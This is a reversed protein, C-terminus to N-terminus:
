GSARPAQLATLPLRNEPNKGYLIEFMRCFRQAYTHNQAHIHGAKRIAEREEEHELYYDRLSIAEEPTDFYVRTGEPYFEECGPWRKTLAFGGAGTIIWFRNSTYGKIDTFHSWDLSIKASRYISPMEKMIKARLQPYKQASADIHKLGHDDKLNWIIKAREMFGAGTIIGGIFVWDFAYKEQVAADWVPSGLPLFHCEPVKWKMRYYEEQADNSVFMADIESCNAGIQTTNSNRLDGYWMVIKADPLAKRIAGRADWDKVLDLLGYVVLDPNYEIVANVDLEPRCGFIQHEIGLDTLGKQMGVFNPCYLEYAPWTAGIIAVKKPYNM